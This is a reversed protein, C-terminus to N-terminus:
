AYDPTEEVAEEEFEDPSAPRGGSFADGDRYKQVGTLVAWICKGAKPIDGCKFEVHANVYCGAYLVGDAETVAVKMQDIYTPRTKNKAVVYLMGEFGQYIEGSKDLHEDGNRLAVKDKNITKTIAIGKAGWKATVIADIAAQAATAALSGPVMIFNAGYKLDGEGNINSPTWLNLFALRVNQLKTTAM